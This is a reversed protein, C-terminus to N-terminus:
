SATRDRALRQVWWAVVDARNYLVHRGVQTGKPGRKTERWYYVTGVPVRLLDAVEASSLLDLMLAGPAVFVEVRFADLDSVRAPEAPSPVEELALLHHVLRRRNALNFAREAPPPETADM